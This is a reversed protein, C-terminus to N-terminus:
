VVTVSLPVTWEGFWEVTEELMRWEFSYPGPEAPATLEFSIEVLAGPEVRGPINMRHSGWITNDRPGESGLRYAAEPTWANSGTNRMTISGRLRGGARVDVPVSQTVFAAWRPPAPSLLFCHYKMWVQIETLQTLDLDKENAEQDEVHVSWSADLGHGWIDSDSETGGGPSADLPRLSAECTAVRPPLVLRRISGDRRRISYRGSHAVLATIANTTARAGVFAVYVTEVKTEYRNRLLDSLKVRFELSRTRKFSDLVDPDKFSLRHKDRNMGAGGLYDNFKTLLDPWTNSSEWSAYYETMLLSLSGGRLADRADEEHDPHMHGYDYRIPHPTPPLTYLEFARGAQFAYRLLYDGYFQATRVLRIATDVRAQVGQRIKEKQDEVARRSEDNRALLGQCAAVTLTAQEYRLLTLVHRQAAEASKELLERYEANATAVRASDEFVKSFSLLHAVGAQTKAYHGELGDAQTILKTSVPRDKEGQPKLSERLLTPIIAETNTLTKGIDIVDGAINLLSVVGRTIFVLSVAAQFVNAVIGIFNLSANELEARKNELDQSLKDLRAQAQDNETKAIKQAGEADLLEKELKQREDTVQNQAIDMAGSALEANWTDSGGIRSALEFLNRVREELSDYMEKYLKFNAKVDSDQAMGLINENRFLQALLQSARQQAPQLSLVAMLETSALLAPDGGHSTILRYNYEAVRLRYMSWGPVLTRALDWSQSVTKQVVTPTGPEETPADPAAPGNSGPPGPDGRLEVSVDRGYGGPGGERWTVINRGGPGGPGGQGGGAGAGGAGGPLQVNFAGGSWGGPLDEMVYSLELEGAAGGWGPRRAGQGPQGPGGRVKQRLLELQQQTPKGPWPTVLSPGPEGAAGPEGTKGSGGTGGPIVANLGSFRQCALRIYRGPRGPMLTEAGPITLKITGARGDFHDAVLVLDRDQLSFEGSGVSLKRACLLVTAGPNSHQTIWRTVEADVTLEDRILAAQYSHTTPINRPQLRSPEASAPLPPRPPRLWEDEPVSPEVRVAVRGPHQQDGHILHGSLLYAGFLVDDESPTDEFSPFAAAQPHQTAAYEAVARFHGRVDNVGHGTAQVHRHSLTSPDKFVLLTHLNEGATSERNFTPMAAAYGHEHAWRNVARFCEPIDDITFSNLEDNRVDRFELNEDPTLVCLSHYTQGAEYRPPTFTPWAHYAGSGAAWRSAMHLLEADSTDLGTLLKLTVDLRGRQPNSSNATPPAAATGRLPPCQTFSPM